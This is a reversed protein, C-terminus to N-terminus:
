STVEASEPALWDDHIERLYDFAAADGGEALRAMAEDGVLYGTDGYCVGSEFFTCGQSSTFWDKGVPPAEAHCSIPGAMPRDWDRSIIDPGLKGIARQANSWPGRWGTGYGDPRTTLPDRMWGTILGWTVVGLPGRLIFQIEMSGAGRQWKEPDFRHDFSPRIHIESAFASM